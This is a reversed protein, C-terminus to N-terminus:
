GHSNISHMIDSGGVDGHAIFRAAIAAAAILDDPSQPGMVYRRRLAQHRRTWTAARGCVDEVWQSLSFVFVM